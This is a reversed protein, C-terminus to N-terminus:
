STDFCFRMQIPAAFAPDLAHDSLPRMRLAEGFRKALNTLTGCAQTATRYTQLWASVIRVARPYHKIALKKALKGFLDTYQMLQHLTHAIQTIYYYNRYAHGQHGYDHELEYGGNKQVNFGQNEIKHRQRGGHNLLHEINTRNPRHDTLFAHRSQTGDRMTIDLFIAHLTVHRYTLNTTWSYLLETGDDLRRLLRNRRQRQLRREAEKYFTPMRGPKFVLMFGWAYRICTDLIPECAFLSDGCLCIPLRPFRRKIEPLLRYAAALECDQKNYKPENEIFESAVSLALGEVSVLKAELVSHFYETQGNPHTQTL